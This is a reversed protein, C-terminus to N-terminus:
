PKPIEGDKGDDEKETRMTQEIPRFVRSACAAFMRDIENKTAEDCPGPVYQEVMLEVGDMPEVREWMRQAHAGGCVRLRPRAGDRGHDELFIMPIPM